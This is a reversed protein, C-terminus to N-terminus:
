ALIEFLFYRRQELDRAVLCTEFGFSFTMVRGLRIGPLHLRKAVAWTNGNGGAGFPTDARGGNPKKRTINFTLRKASCFHTQHRYRLSGFDKVM